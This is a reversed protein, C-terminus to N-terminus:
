AYSVKISLTAGCGANKTARRSLTAHEKHFSSHQCVYDKRYARGRRGAPYTRRVRWVCGSSTSFAALWNDCEEANCCKLKIVARFGGTSNREGSALQYSYNTPMLQVSFHVALFLFIVVLMVSFMAKLM